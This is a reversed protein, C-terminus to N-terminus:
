FSTVKHHPDTDGPRLEEEEAGGDGEGNWHIAGGGGSRCDCRSGEAKEATCEEGAGTQM